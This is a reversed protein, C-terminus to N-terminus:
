GLMETPFRLFIVFIYSLSAMTVVSICVLCICNLLLVYRKLTSALKRGGSDLVGKHRPFYNLVFVVKGNKVEEEKKNKKTTTKKNNNKKKNQKM